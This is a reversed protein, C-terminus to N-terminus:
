IELFSIPFGGNTILKGLFREPIGWQQNAVRFASWFHVMASSNGPFSM